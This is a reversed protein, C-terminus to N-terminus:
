DQTYRAIIPAKLMNYEESSIAGDNFLAKLRILVEIDTLSNDDLIPSTHPQSKELAPEIRVRKTDNIYLNLGSEGGNSGNDSKHAYHLAWVLAILWGVITSGFAVSIILILWRNPHRRKFAIYTPILWIILLIIVLVMLGIMMVVELNNATETGSNAYAPATVLFLFLLILGNCIRKQLQQRRTLM